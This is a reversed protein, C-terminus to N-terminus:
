LAYSTVVGTFLALGAWNNNLFAKFCADRHRHRIRWQQHVFLLTMVVLGAYYPWALQLRWGLASLLVLTMLQFLAIFHRDYRGFWIATSRIGVQLDDERDVMGYMTDYAVTWCWHAFFLYWAELPVAGTQAAFAMPISWSWVVGLVMQPGPFFRKTFPYLITLAMGVFSMMVTLTNLTLVLSFCVLGLVVFLALAERPKLEGSALPRGKTREVHGDLDRDAYDNIICGNARTLWVGVFFVLVVRPDPSGNNAALWIASLTPWLLLFTGIPRDLRALRLYPGLRDRMVALM